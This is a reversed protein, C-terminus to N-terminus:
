RIEAAKKLYFEKLQNQIILYSDIDMKFVKMTKKNLNVDNFEVDHFHDSKGFFSHFDTSVTNM